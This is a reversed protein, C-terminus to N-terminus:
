EENIGTLMHALLPECKQKCCPYFHGHKWFASKPSQGWWFEALAIPQMKHEFAYQLLKPGACEGTGAPPNKHFTDKFLTLLSKQTGAKNLFNYQEFIKHQLPVSKKKRLLKLHKIQEDFEEKKLELLNKITNNITSIDEMGKNLFSDAHLTDFIPPVFQAHHNGGALKGSFAALYGIEKNPKKVVLVGFMKGIIAGQQKDLLGFNHTWKKQYNLHQQLQQAALLCIPHPKNNVLMTFQKPLIINDILVDLSTFLTNTDITHKTM